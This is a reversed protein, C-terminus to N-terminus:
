KQECDEFVLFQQLCLLFDEEYFEDVLEPIAELVPKIIQKIQGSGLKASAPYVGGSFYDECRSTNSDVVLFKPNAMQM